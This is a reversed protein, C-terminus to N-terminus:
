KSLNASAAKFAHENFIAIETSHTKLCQTYNKRTLIGWDRLYKYKLCKIIKSKYNCDM